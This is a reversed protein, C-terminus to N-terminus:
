KIKKVPIGIYTGIENIDNVVVAGAGIKCRSTITLNNSVISGIGLWSKKGVRVNGVLHASPSIHVFDEIQDDHDVSSGTNIICGRGVSTSSNIIAGAMIVSGSGIEVENGIIANPHILIPIKAGM